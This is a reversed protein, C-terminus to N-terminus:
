SLLSDACMFRENERNDTMAGATASTKMPTAETAKEHPAV